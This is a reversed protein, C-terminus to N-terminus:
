KEDALELARLVYPMAGLAQLEGRPVWRAEDTTGDREWVLERRDDDVEVLYVIRVSCVTTGERRRHEEVLVCLLAPDRGVLGTEETLERLVADCPDEGFRLGGGPLFWKGEVETKDSARAVLVDGDRRCVAYAAVRWLGDPGDDDTAASDDPVDRGSRPM